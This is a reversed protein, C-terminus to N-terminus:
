ARPSWSTADTSDMGRESAPWTAPTMQPAGNAAPSSSPTAAGARANPTSAHTSLARCARLGLKRRANTAAASTVATFTSGRRAMAAAAAPTAADSDRSHHGRPRAQAAAQKRDPAPTSAAAQQRCRWRDSRTGGRRRRAAGRRSKPWEARIARRRPAPRRRAPTSRSQRKCRPRARRPREAAAGHVRRRGAPGRQLPEEARGVLLRRPSRSPACRSARWQENIHTECQGHSGHGPQGGRCSYLAAQQPTDEEDEDDFDPTTWITTTM